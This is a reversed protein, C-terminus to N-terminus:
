LEIECNNGALIGRSRGRVRANDGLISDELVASIVETDEGIISNRVVSSIVRGGRAISVHPGIVSSELVAGEGISVPPVLTVGEISPVATAGTGLDLLTRNTELM